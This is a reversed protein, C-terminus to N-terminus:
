REAGVTRSGVSVDKVSLALRNMRQLGVLYIAWIAAAFVAFAASAGGLVTAAVIMVAAVAAISLATLALFRGEGQAVLVGEVVGYLIRAPGALLALALYDASQGYVPRGLADALWGVLPTFAVIAAALLFPLVIKAHERRTVRLNVGVTGLARTAHPIVAFVIVTGIRQPITFLVLAVDVIAVLTYSDLTAAFRVVVPLVAMGVTATALWLSFGLLERPGPVVASHRASMRKFRRPSTRITFFLGSGLGILNGLCFVTFASLTTVGVGTLVLIALPALEGIAGIPMISASSAMRGRGRLIGM